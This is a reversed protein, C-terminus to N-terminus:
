AVTLFIFVIHLKNHGHICLLVYCIKVYNKQSFLSFSFYIIAVTFYKFRISCSCHILALYYDNISKM